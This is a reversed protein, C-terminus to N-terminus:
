AAGAARGAASDWESERGVSDGHREDFEFVDGFAVADAVLFNEGQVADVERNLLAFVRRDDPRAPAAFGREHMQQSAEVRGSGARHVDVTHIDAM